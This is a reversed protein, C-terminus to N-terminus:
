EDIPGFIVGLAGQLDPLATGQGAVFLAGVILSFAGALVGIVLYVNQKTHSSVFGFAAFAAVLSNSLVLGCVFSLLMLTGALPTTAGAAGALLLAQSGTEAGVGHIMGVGYATRPGYQPPDEEFHSVPHGSLRARATAWGHRILSFVLMWRSRLRFNRGHRLLSYFVWIGLLLLTAGVVREMLPDIWEPLLTSAWIALLGLLVVVSAHGLAYFTALIFGERGERWHSRRELLAVAQHERAHELEQEHAHGPEQGAINVRASTIDAIAALHDWDIGHRLGLTLGLVVLALVGGEM